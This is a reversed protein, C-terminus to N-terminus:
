NRSSTPGNQFTGIDFATELNIYSIELYMKM